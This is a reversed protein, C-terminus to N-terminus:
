FIPLLGPRIFLLILVLYAIILIIYFIVGFQESYQEFVTDEIPYEFSHQVKKNVVVMLHSKESSKFGFSALLQDLTIPEVFSYQAKQQNGVPRIASMFEVTILIKKM